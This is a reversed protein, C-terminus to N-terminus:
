HEALALWVVGTAILAIAAIRAPGVPDGLFAIGLLATGVAGIGVWVAYGTGVPLDRLAIGLLVASAAYVPVFLATPVLRTFGNSEKLALAWVVELLGALILPLWSM